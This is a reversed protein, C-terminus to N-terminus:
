RARERCGPKLTFYGEYTITEKILEIMPETGNQVQCLSLLQFLILDSAWMLSIGEAFTRQLIRNMPSKEKGPYLGLLYRYM